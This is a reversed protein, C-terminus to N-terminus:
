AVCAADVCDFMVFSKAPTHQNAHTHTDHQSPIYQMNSSLLWFEFAVLVYSITRLTATHALPHATWLYVRHIHTYSFQRDGRNWSRISMHYYGNMCSFSPEEYNFSPLSVSFVLDFAFNGFIFLVARHETQNHRTTSINISTFVTACPCHRSAYVGVWRKQEHKHRYTCSKILPPQPDNLASTKWQGFFDTIGYETCMIQM